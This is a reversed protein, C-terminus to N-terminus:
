GHFNGGGNEAVHHGYKYNHWEPGFKGTYKSVYSLMLMLLEDNEFSEKDFELTSSIYDGGNADCEVDVVYLRRPNPNNVLVAKDFIDYKKYM